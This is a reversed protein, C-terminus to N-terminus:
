KNSLTSVLWGGHYRLIIPCRASTESLPDRKELTAKPVLVDIKIPHDEVTKYVHTTVSFPDLRNM